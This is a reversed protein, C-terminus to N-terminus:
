FHFGGGPFGGEFQFSFTQGGGHFGQHFGQGGGHQEELDEGRDYRERKEEDGLVEYAEAVERFKDEAAEKNDQNKDPHWQLALRKYAKKIELASATNSLGLVKYWDKRKSLKLAHEARQLGERLDHDQPNQQIAAKFDAVAGEWDEVLLKAEARQELADLSAGDMELVLSCRMVADKGRGLQVLAKCLGMNLKINHLDHDPVIELAALYAEVATRFKSKELAEDAAKTKRLLMKLKFYQKKLEGHEPDLRLGSQYHRLAVDHDALYFYANGRVLLADLDSDDLKLVRGAEAVADSYDKKKLALKAKLLRAQACESSVDLVKELAEAAQDFEEADFRAIAQELLAGAHASQELEKRGNTHGPKLELVKQFDQNAEKFRCMQRLLRGRNLYGQFFSPDVSLARDLDALAERYKRQQLYVASRKTFGLPASSDLEIFKSYQKLAITYDGKSLSADGAQLYSAADSAFVHFVQALILGSILIGRCLGRWQRSACASDSFWTRPVERMSCDRVGEGRM